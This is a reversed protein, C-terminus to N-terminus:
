KDAPAAMTSPAQSGPEASDSPPAPPVSQPANLAAGARPEILPDSLPENSKILDTKIEVKQQPRANIEAEFTEYGPLAIKIRHVGPEVLMGRGWGRLEGVHGVFMGDVFVAARPPYAAVTVTSTTRLPSTIAKAMEVTIEQKEGARVTVEETFDKYGDERVMITHTGPLLLVKKSGKLEKLYGVYQGDVWVGASREVKSKGDFHIEGLVVNEALCAAPVLLAFLLLALRAYRRACSMTVELCNEAKFGAIVMGFGAESGDVRNM